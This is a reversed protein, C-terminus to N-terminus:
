GLVRDLYPNTFVREPDLRDRVEVFDGHRPYM